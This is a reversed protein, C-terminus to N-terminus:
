GSVNVTVKKSLDGKAIATSVLFNQNLNSPPIEVLLQQDKHYLTWMGNASGSGDVKKMKDILTEFQSKAPAAAPNAAPTAQQNQAAIPGLNLSWVALSTATMFLFRSAM